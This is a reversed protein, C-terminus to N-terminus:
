AWFCALERMKSHGSVIRLLFKDGGLERWHRRVERRRQAIYAGCSYSAGIRVPIPGCSVDAVGSAVGVSAVGASDNGSFYIAAGGGVGLIRSPMFLM